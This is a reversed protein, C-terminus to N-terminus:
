HASRATLPASAKLDSFPMKSSTRTKDAFESVEM